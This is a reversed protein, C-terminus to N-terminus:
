LARGKRQMGAIRVYGGVPPHLYGSSARTEWTYIPKGFGIAFAKGGEKGAPWGIIASNTSSFSFGLGLIALLAYFISEM